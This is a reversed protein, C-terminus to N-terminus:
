RSAGLELQVPHRILSYEYIMRGNHEGEIECRIDHGQRRLDSARSHPTLGCGREKVSAMIIEMTSAPGRELVSLMFEADTM